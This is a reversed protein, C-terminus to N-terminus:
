WMFPERLHLTRVTGGFIWIIADKAVLTTLAHEIRKHAIVRACLLL